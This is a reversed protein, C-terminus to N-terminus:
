GPPELEGRLIAAHMTRLEVGPDVGLEDNLRRRTAAYCDLAEARRGADHLARMLAAALPEAHPQEAILESLPGVIREADGLRLEAKAWSTAADIRRRQWGERVQAAWDGRVDGLPTGRWLGLAQRLLAVRLRDPRGPRSGQDALHRFRHADVDGPDVDLLYGGSRRVLPAPSGDAEELMRRIRAVYVYLAHRAREPPNPGWVRNIVTDLLVLRGPDVALAALVGRQRAPGVDVRGGGTRIEVPGLLRFELGSEMSRVAPRRVGAARSTLEDLAFAQM